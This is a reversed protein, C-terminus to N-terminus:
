NKSKRVVKFSWWEGADCRDKANCALVHWYYTKGRELKQTTFLLKGLHKFTVVVQGDPSDARIEVVYYKACNVAEWTFQIKGEGAKGDNIPTLALPASPKGKCAVAPPATSVQIPDTLEASNDTHMVEIRYFYTKGAEVVADDFTYSNGTMRGPALAPILETNQAAYDGDRAESRLVNFGVINLETLTEWRLSITNNANATADVAGMGAATPTSNQFGFDVQLNARGDTTGNQTGGQTQGTTFDTEASGTPANDTAGLTITSSRIGDAAQGGAGRDVGKDTKDGTQTGSSSYYGALPQGSGFNAANVVVVYKGAPLNNFSYYGSGDTTTTQLAAGDPIGDSNSDQYLSMGIGSIGTEGGDLIGNNATGGSAGNDRWVRNGISFLPVFGLDVLPNNVTGTSATSANGNPAPPNGTGGNSLTFAATTTNNSNVNATGAGNDDSDAGMPAGANAGDASSQYGVMASQGSAIQIKYNSAPALPNGSGVGAANTQQTFLYNGNADTTTVAVLEGADIISDNNADRFLRVTVGSIGAETGNQIGDNAVGGAGAGNDNWITNGLTLRYFGFDALTLEERNDPATTTVGSSDTEGTAANDTPGLVINNTRIGNTAPTADDVGDDNNDAAGSVGTTSNYGALVSGSTFNSAAVRVRYTGAPLYDFRYYGNANTTATINGYGLNVPNNSSDLLEMTIGSVGVEAVERTNNNNTDFWVRNGLSFGARFGFDLTPNNTTGNANNAASGVTNAAGGAGLTFTDSLAGNLLNAGGPTVNKGNDDTANGNGTNTPNSTSATDTTSILGSLNAQGSPIYIRYDSGPVIPRGNGVGGADTQQTFLYNGSADTTTVAILEGADIVGDNDADRFLQVQVGTIGPETGNQIGDNAVGGSGTGNDNWIRDGVTLHYFGFDVTLNSRNDTTPLASPSNVGDAEGTPANGNPATAYGLTFTNSGIGNTPFSTDDVGTDRQDVTNTNANVTTGSSNFGALTSGSTFNSSNARVSYSGPPLTDFRYYGSANTTQTAVVQGATYTTGGVIVTSQALLSVSVGSIGVEAGNIQGNNDTDYWVRNGVSFGPVVGLDYTHNNSGASGTTLSIVPWTGAPSGGPNAANTADSDRADANAGADGAGTDPANAVTLYEQYLGGGSAFDTARDLRIQYATNRLINVGYDIGTADTGSASSFYYQGSSNTIATGVLTSGQYLHVQVGAIGPEAPDQIGDGDDDRWLRNGIEIPAADCLAEVDGLGNAKGFRANIPSSPPATTQFLEVSRVRQGDDNAGTDYNRFQSTGGAWLDSPDLITTVVEGNGPVQALGGVTTEDHNAHNDGLYFEGGGPGQPVGLGTTPGFIGTPNSQTNNEITWGGSANPNARLIDGAGTTNLLPSTQTQAPGPDQYGIMDGNRDRFGLIMDNGDFVIDSLMPMPYGGNGGSINYTDNDGAGDIQVITSFTDRWPRWAAYPRDVTPKCTPFQNNTDVSINLCQRNFNLSFQIVPSASFTNSVPNFTYVYAQLDSVVGVNGAATNEASCVGGVYLLNDSWGLGFPRGVGRTTCGENGAGTPNPILGRDTVASTALNVEYLHRDNLNVAYLLSEDANFEIDGLSRKGVLAFAGNDFDSDADGSAYNTHPDAGANPITFVGTGDAAGGPTISYIGGPGGAGFGANRKLFAAAYLTTTTSRYALGWTTGIQNAQSETLQDAPSSTASNDTYDHSFLVGQTGSQNGQIYCSTVLRPNNQCYDRPSNFSANVSVAGGAVTIFQVSTGNGTGFAGPKLGSNDPSSTSSLFEIRYSGDALSGLTYSGPAPTNVGTCTAAPAGASICVPNTTASAVIGGAANFARVTIGGLGPERTDRVGNANYDRYVTGTVAGAAYAIRGPAGLHSLVFIAVGLLLAAVLSRKLTDHVNFDLRIRNM